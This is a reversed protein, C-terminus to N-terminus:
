STWFTNWSKQGKEGSFSKDVKKKRGERSWSRYIGGSVGPERHVNPLRHVVPNGPSFSGALGQGQGWVYVCLLIGAVVTWSQATSSSREIRTSSYLSPVLPPSQIMACEPSAHSIRKKKKTKQREFLGGFNHRNAEAIALWFGSKSYTVRRSWSKTGTWNTLIYGALQEALGLSKRDQRTKTQKNTKYKEKKKTRREGRSSVSVPRGIRCPRERIFIFYFPPLSGQIYEQFSFLLRRQPVTATAISSTCRGTLFDEGSILCIPFPIAFFFFCPGNQGSRM